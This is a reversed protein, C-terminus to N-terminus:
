ACLRQTAEEPFAVEVTGNVNRVPWCPLAQHGEDLGQGSQLCYRQKLLPSAVYLQDGQIGILGRAMVQAGTVPDLNDMAFLQQKAPVYFVALQREGVLAAVGGNPLLQNENCIPIWQQASM